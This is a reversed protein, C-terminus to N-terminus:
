RPTDPPLEYRQPEGGLARIQEEYRIAMRLALGDRRRQEIDHLRKRRRSLGFAVAVVALLAFTLAGLYIGSSCADSLVDGM